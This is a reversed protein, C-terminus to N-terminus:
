EDDSVEFHEFCGLETTECLCGDDQDGNSDGERLEGSGDTAAVVPTSDVHQGFDSPIATM